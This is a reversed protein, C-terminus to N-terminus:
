IDRSIHFHRAQVCLGGLKWLCNLSYEVLVPHHVPIPGAILFNPLFGARWPKTVMSPAGNCLKESCNMPWFQATGHQEGQLASESKRASCWLHAPGLRVWSQSLSRQIIMGMQQEIYPINVLMKAMFHNTCTPLDEICSAYPILYDLCTEFDQGPRFMGRVDHHGPISAPIKEAAGYFFDGDVWWYNDVFWEDGLVVM